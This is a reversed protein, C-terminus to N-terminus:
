KCSFYFIMKMDIAKYKDESQFLTQPLKTERAATKQIDRLAGGLSRQTVDLFRSRVLSPAVSLFSFIGFVDEKFTTAINSKRM